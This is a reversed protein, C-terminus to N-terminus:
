HKGNGSRGRGNSIMNQEPDTTLQMLAHRILNQALPIKYGNHELAEAEVMAIEATRTFLAENPSHGVLEQEALPLRWPVPAVGGLVLRVDEIEGNTMQVIAALGVLAFAWVKRDMAKLYISRSGVPLNPLRSDVVMEDAAITTERRRNEGPLAFFDEIPLFREGDPGRLAVEADLALLAPALDSPHVAYCPGGGFLAHQQNEGEYAHCEDGGKLWCHFLHSRYYWCRTRQLLNGGLTAMNRLQPTAALSAAQALLPYHQQLLRSQEIEALTTLAGITVGQGTEQIGSPLNDLRKIDILQEPAIIDSKMLTLLDTGGALLKVHEPGQDLLEITSEISEASTYDFQRM